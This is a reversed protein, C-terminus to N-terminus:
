DSLFSSFARSVRQDEILSERGVGITELIRRYKTPNRFLESIQNGYSLPDAAILTPLGITKLGAASHNGRMLGSECTLTPLLVDCADLFTNGGSWGYSDINIFSGELHALYGQRSMRPTFEVRSLGEPYALQFVDTIRAKFRRNSEAADLMLFSLYFNEPLDKVLNVWMQDHHPLYKWLSQITCVRIRASSNIRRDHLDSAKTPAMSWVRKPLWLGFGPMAVVTETYREERPGSEPEM